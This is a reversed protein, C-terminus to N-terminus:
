YTAVTFGRKALDILEYIAENLGATWTDNLTTNLRITIEVDGSQGNWTPRDPLLHQGPLNKIPDAIAPRVQLVLVLHPRGVAIGLVVLHVEERCLNCVAVAPSSDGKLKCQFKLMQRTPPPYM